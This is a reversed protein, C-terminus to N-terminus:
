PKTTPIPPNPLIVPLSGIPPASKTDQPVMLPAKPADSGATAIAEQKATPVNLGRFLGNWISLLGGGMSIAHYARGIIGLLVVGGTIYSAYKPFLTSLQSATETDMGRVM